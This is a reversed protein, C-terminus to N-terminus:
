SKQLFAVATDGYKKESLITFESLASFNFGAETEAIIIADDALWGGHSLNDLAPVLLDKNYPPDCFVVDARRHEESRVSLSHAASKIFYAENRINFIEANKKACSISKESIDVFICQAAGRSLAELGLAGSGCFIDMVCADSLSMRACLANFIAGRVKDSTPRIDRGKPVSIKRGGYQGAVIRM